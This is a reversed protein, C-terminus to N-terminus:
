DKKILVEAVIYKKKKEDYSTSYSVVAGELKADENISNDRHDEVREHIKSIRSEHFFFIKAKMMQLLLYLAKRSTSFNIIITNISM